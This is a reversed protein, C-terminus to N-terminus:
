LDLLKINGEWDLGFNFQHLDLNRGFLTIKQLTDIFELLKIGFSNSPFIERIDFLGWRSANENYQIFFQLNDYDINEFIEEDENNNEEKIFEVVEYLADLFRKTNLKEQIMWGKEYNIKAINAFLNPYKKFFDEEKKIHSNYKKPFTKVIYNPNSKLPFVKKISGIDKSIEDKQQVSWEHLIISISEKLNM